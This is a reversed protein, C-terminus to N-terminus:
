LIGDHGWMRPPTEAKIAKDSLMQSDEGCAHPHKKASTQRTLRYATKGVHTPTNGAPFFRQIVGLRRGWMRPPTEIQRAAIEARHQDEGCAHPARGTEEISQRQGDGGCAYKKQPVSKERIYRFDEGNARPLETLRVPAFTSRMGWARPSRYPEEMSTRNGRM